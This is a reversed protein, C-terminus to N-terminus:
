FFIVFDLTSESKAVEAEALEVAAGVVAADRAQSEQTCLGTPSGLNNLRRAGVEPHIAATNGGLYGPKMLSLANLSALRAGQAARVFPLTRGAPDGELRHPPTHIHPHAIYLGPLLSPSLSLHARYPALFNRADYRPFLLIQKNSKCVSLFSPLFFLFLSFPLRSFLFLSCAFFFFHHWFKVSYWSFYDVTYFAPGCLM